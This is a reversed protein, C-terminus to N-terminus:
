KVHILNELLIYYFLAFKVYIKGNKLFLNKLLPIQVIFSKITYVDMGM